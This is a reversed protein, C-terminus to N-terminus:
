TISFTGDFNLPWVVRYSDDNMRKAIVAEDLHGSRKLVAKVLEIPQEWSKVFAFINMEERGIDGGDVYGIGGLNRELAGGIKEELDHRIGLCDLGEFDKTQFQIILQKM